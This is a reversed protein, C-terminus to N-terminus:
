EYSVIVSDYKEVKLLNKVETIVLLNKGGMDIINYKYCGINYVKRLFLGRREEISFRKNCIGFGRDYTEILYTNDGFKRLITQSFNKYM